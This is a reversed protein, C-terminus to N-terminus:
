LGQEKLQTNADIENDVAYSSGQPVAGVKGLKSEEQPGAAGTIKATGDPKIEAGTLNTNGGIAEILMKWMDTTKKQEAASAEAMAQAQNIAMTPKGIAAGVGNPAMNSGVGALLNIFDRNAFLGEKKQEEPM